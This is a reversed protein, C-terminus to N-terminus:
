AFLKPKFLKKKMSLYDLFKFNFIKKDEIIKNYYLYFLLYCSKKSIKLIKEWDQSTAVKSLETYLAKIQQINKDM